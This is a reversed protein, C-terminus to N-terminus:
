QALEPIIESLPIKPLDVIRSDPNSNIVPMGLAEADAAIAPFARLHRGFNSYKSRKYKEVDQLEAHGGMEYHRGHWHSRGQGDQTLDMDFGLLIVRAAGLHYAVSIAAAGSNLNWCVRDPMSSIGHRKYPDKPLFTLGKYDELLQDCHIKQAPHDLLAQEHKRFWHREGFFAVDVWDGLTYANNVSVVPRGYLHPAMYAGVEAEVAEGSLAREALDDPIGFQHLISPGGGIIFVDEGEWRNPTLKSYRSSVKKGRAVM